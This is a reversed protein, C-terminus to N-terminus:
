EGTEIDRKQLKLNAARNWLVNLRALLGKKRGVMDM